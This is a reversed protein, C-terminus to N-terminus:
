QETELTFSFKVGDKVPELLLTGCSIIDMGVIADINQETISVVDTVRPTIVTNEFLMFSVNSYGPLSTRGGHATEVDHHRLYELELKAALRESIASTTAGTDWLVRVHYGEVEKGETLIGVIADTIVAEGRQV